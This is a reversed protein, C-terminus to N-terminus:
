SGPRDYGLNGRDAPHTDNSQDVHGENINYERLTGDPGLIYHAFVSSNAFRSDANVLSDTLAYDGGPVTGNMYFSPYRNEIDGAANYGIDPHSHVLALITGNGIYRASGFNTSPAALGAAIAEAVSMGRILPGMRIEGNLVYIVAGYERENWDPQAKILGEIQRALVDVHLDVAAEYQRWDAATVTGGFGGHDALVPGVSATDFTWHGGNVIITDDTSAPPPGGPHWTGIVTGSTVTIAFQNNGLGGFSVSNGLAAYGSAFQGAGISNLVASTFEPDIDATLYDFFHNEPMAAFHPMWMFDAMFGPPFPAVDSGDDYYSNQDSGGSSGSGNLGSFFNQLETMTLAWDGPTLPSDISGGPSVLVDGSNPEPPANPTPSAEIQQLDFDPVIGGWNFSLDFSPFEWM